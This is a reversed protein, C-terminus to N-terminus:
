RPRPLRPIEPNDDDPHQGERYPQGWANVEVGEVMYKGGPVTKDLGPTAGHAHPVLNNAQMATMLASALQAAGDTAPQPQPHSAPDNPKADPKPPPPNLLTPDPM